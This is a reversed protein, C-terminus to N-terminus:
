VLPTGLMRTVMVVVLPVEMDPETVWTLSEDPMAAKLLRLM